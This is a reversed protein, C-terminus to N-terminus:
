MGEWTVTRVVSAAGPAVHGVLRVIEPRPHDGGRARRLVDVEWGRFRADYYGHHAYWTELRWGDAAIEDDHLKSWMGPAILRVFAPGRSERQQIADRLASDSTSSLPGANGEFEIKRVLRDSETGPPRHVCGLALLALLANM